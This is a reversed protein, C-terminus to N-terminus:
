IITRLKEPDINAGSLIVAVKQPSGEAREFRQKRAGAVAVAAAAEAVLREERMIDRVASRIQDESVVDIRQVLRRVIDFTVTDPDLNGALGDALTPGVEIPVIQGAQLSQTFPCSAQAEVGLVGTGTGELAIAIGSLLGGGGVPVVVLDLDPCDEHLELGITAAGAIVDPHSYPSIFVAGSRSGDEKARQEADDYTETLRVDPTLARIGELKLHPVTAPVYVSVRMNAARAALALGRGHNGASATVIARTDGREKMALVANWGGRIKFSFTPQLTELKLYVEAGTERSLWESRRL